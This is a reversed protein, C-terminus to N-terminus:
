VQKTVMNAARKVRRAAAIAEPALELPGDVATRCHEAQAREDAPDMDVLGKAAVQRRVAIMGGLAGVVSRDM